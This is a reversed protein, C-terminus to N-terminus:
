TGSSGRRIMLVEQNTVDVINIISWTGDEYSHGSQFIQIETDANPGLAAKLAGGLKKMDAKYRDQDDAEMDEEDITVGSGPYTEMLSDILQGINAFRAASTGEGDSYLIGGRAINLQNMSNLLKESSNKTFSFSIVFTADGYFEDGSVLVDQAVKQARALKKNTMQDIETFKAAFASSAM